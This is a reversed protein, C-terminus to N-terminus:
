CSAAERRGPHRAVGLVALVDALMERNVRGRVRICRDGSLVIEISGEAGNTAAPSM